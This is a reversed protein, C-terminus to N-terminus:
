ESNEGGFFHAEQLVGKFKKPFLFSSWLVDSSLVLESVM